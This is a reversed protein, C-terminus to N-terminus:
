FEFYASQQQTFVSETEGSQAALGGPIVRKVFIGFDSDLLDESTGGVIKIGTIGISFYM